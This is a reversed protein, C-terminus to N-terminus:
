GGPEQPWQLVRPDVLETPVGEFRVHQGTAIGRKACTGANLELVYRSPKGVSRGTLTLPEANEVIGVITGDSSIFLMDLPLHTNKMWFSNVKEREFLFLMGADDDMKDRFMLGREREKNTIALEVSFRADGDHTKIVVDGHKQFMADAASKEQDPHARKAETPTCAIALAAIVVVFCVRGSM